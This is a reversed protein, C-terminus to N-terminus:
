GRGNCFDPALVSEFHRSVFNSDFEFQFNSSLNFQRGLVAKSWCDIDCARRGVNLQTKVARIEESEKVGECVQKGFACNGRM